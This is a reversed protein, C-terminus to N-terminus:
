QSLCVLDSRDVQLLKKSAIPENNRIFNYIDQAAEHPTKDATSVKFDYHEHSHVDSTEFYWRSLGIYGGNSAGRKKEREQTIELPCEIGISYVRFSQLERAAIRLFDSNFVGDSIINNGNSAIINLTPFFASILQMGVPGVHIKTRPGNEDDDKIFSIGSELREINANADLCFWQNPLMNVFSDIPLHIYPNKDKKAFIEQLAIAVSTKGSSSIGSILIITTLINMVNTM